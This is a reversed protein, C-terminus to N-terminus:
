RVFTEGLLSLEAKISLRYAKKEDLIVDCDHLLGLKM